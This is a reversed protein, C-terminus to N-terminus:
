ITFYANSYRYYSSVMHTYGKGFWLLVRIVWYDTIDCENQHYVTAAYILCTFLIEKLIVM